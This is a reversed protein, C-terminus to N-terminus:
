DGLSFNVDITTTVEVPQGNLMTPRYRWQRVANLAAETLRPDVSNVAHLGGLFGDKSIVAEIEVTGQIGQQRLDPSYVPKVVVLLNAPQVAGEPQASDRPMFFQEVFQGREPNAPAPAPVPVSRSGTVSISTTVSGLQLFTTGMAHAEGAAVAIGTQTSMRFGLASVTVTYTGPEIDPFRYMGTSDATVWGAVGGPGTLEVPANAVGKGSPDIVVGWLSQSTAAPRAQAVLTRKKHVIAEPKRVIGIPPPVQSQAVSPAVSPAQAYYGVAGVTFVTSVVACAATVGIIRGRSVREVPVGAMIRRIRQPLFAGPMAM